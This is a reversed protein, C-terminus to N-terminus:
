LKFPLVRHRKVFDAPLARLAESSIALGGLGGAGTSTSHDDPEPLAPGAQGAPPTQSETM